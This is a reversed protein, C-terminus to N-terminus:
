LGFDLNFLDGAEQGLANQGAHQAGAYSLGPDHGAVLTMSNIRYRALRVAAFPKYLGCTVVLLLLNGAHLWLLQRASAKSVFRHQGVETNHWLLNQLRSELYPRVFLYFAYASVVGYLLSFLWGLRTTAMSRVLGEGVSALLGAPILGLLLLGFACAYMTYFQRPQAHFYFATSGFCAHDHQYRKLLFHALPVCAALMLVLALITLVMGWGPNNRYSVFLSWIFLGSMALLIPFLILTRYAQPVTGLFDFRLGRYSTNRLSFRFARALLWPLLAAIVAAVVLAAVLSTGSALQWAGLLLLGLVRGRLIALPAAHYDFVAGALQTNRYFYQLRRVKAWASYVGLTLVTLLLNVIWIRFYEAGSGTFRFAQDGAEDPQPQGRPQLWGPAPAAGSAGRPRTTAPHVARDKTAPAPRFRRRAPNTYKGLTVYTGKPL